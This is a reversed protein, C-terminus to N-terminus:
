DLIIWSLKQYLNVWSLMWNMIEMLIFNILHNKFQLKSQVKLKKLKSKTLWM